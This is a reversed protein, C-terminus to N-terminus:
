RASIRLIGNVGRMVINIIFLVSTRVRFSRIQNKYMRMHITNRSAESYMCIM